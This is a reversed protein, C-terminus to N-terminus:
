RGGGGEPRRRKEVLGRGRLGTLDDAKGAGRAFCRSVIEAPYLPFFGIRRLMQKYM